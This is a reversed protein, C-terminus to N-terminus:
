NRRGKMRERGEDDEHHTKREKGERESETKM